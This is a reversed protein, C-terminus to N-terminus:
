DGIERVLRFGLGSGYFEQQFAMRRACRASWADQNWSGGRIVRNTSEGTFVPNKHSHCTYAKKDYIDQCWEWVNGCMDFLGCGNPQKEGVPHTKGNSNENFWARSEVNEGGAYKEERGKSRAAYEWEAETPLRYTHCEEKAPITLKQIFRRADFLSVQEVPRNDGIFLSPNDSMISLWQAQTVPYKAMYFRSVSVKHVPLENELGDGFTDGMLYTGGEIFVFEMHTIPDVFNAAISEDKCPRLNCEPCTMEPPSLHQGCEACILRTECEPCRKWDVKVPFNCHPCRPMALGTECVPCLKWHSQVPEGCQPCILKINELRNMTKIKKM